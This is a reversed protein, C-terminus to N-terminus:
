GVGGVLHLGYETGMEKIPCQVDIYISSDNDLSFDDYMITLM